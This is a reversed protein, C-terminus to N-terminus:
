LLAAPSHPPVECLGCCSWVDSGRRPYLVFGPLIHVKLGSFFNGPHMARAQLQEWGTEEGECIQKTPSTSVLQKNKAMFHSTPIRPSTNSEEDPRDNPRVSSVGSPFENDDRNRTALHSMDVSVHVQNQVGPSLEANNKLGGHSHSSGPQSPFDEAKLGFTEPIFTSFSIHASVSASLSRSFTQLQKIMQTKFCSSPLLLDM